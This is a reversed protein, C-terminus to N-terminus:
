LPLTDRRMLPTLTSLFELWTLSYLCGVSLKVTTNLRAPSSERKNYCRSMFAFLTLGASPIRSNAVTPSDKEDQLAASEANLRM